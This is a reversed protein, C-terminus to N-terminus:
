NKPLSQNSNQKRYKHNIQEHNKKQNLRLLNPSELIQGFRTPQEIQKGYINMSAEQSGKYIKKLTLHLKVEKM